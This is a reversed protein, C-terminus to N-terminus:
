EINNEITHDNIPTRFPVVLIEDLLAFEQSFSRVFNM